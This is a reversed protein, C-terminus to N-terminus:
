IEEKVVYIPKKQSEHYTRILLEALLGMTIFQIGTFILLVSLQLLPRTGIAQNMFLKIFALYFATAFGLAGSVLGIGGFIHIPKTIYSLLFKVTMLDLIVRFTRSIGYKSTGRMRKRHNVKVESVDVGMWSAVAPIFRHMEGYLNINKIVEGRFAKLSCGYDHLKVKTTMSIIRNAIMSPLKRNIFADQRAHRWGSVIDHGKEIEDLLLPIDAPDNQLDGDMTVIIDGRAADFGASMAATQGFNKRLRVVRLNASEKKINKLIEFTRDRSGDDVIVIESEFSAEKLFANIQIYLEEVNEEENFVPVVVSLLKINYDKM